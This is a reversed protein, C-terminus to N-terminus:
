ASHQKTTPQKLVTTYEPPIVPTVNVGSKSLARCVRRLKEWAYVRINEKPVDDPIAFEWRIEPRLVIRRKSGSASGAM